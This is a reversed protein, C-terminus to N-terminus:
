MPESLVESTLTPSSNRSAILRFLAAKITTWLWGDPAGLLAYLSHEVASGRLSHATHSPPCADCWLYHPTQLEGSSTALRSGGGAPAALWLTPITVCSVATQLAMPQVVRQTSSSPPPIPGDTESPGTADRRSLFGASWVGQNGRYRARSRAAGPTCAPGVAVHRHERRSSPFWM